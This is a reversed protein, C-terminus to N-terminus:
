RRSWFIKRSASQVEPRFAARRASARNKRRASIRKKRSRRASNHIKPFAAPRNPADPYERPRPPEAPKKLFLGGGGLGPRLGGPPQFAGCFESIPLACTQVGTVTGDRIGDEAQFFLCLLRIQSTEM